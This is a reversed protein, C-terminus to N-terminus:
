GSTPGQWRRRAPPHRRSWTPAGHPDATRRVHGAAELAAIQRSAVSVDVHLDEAVAGIRVPGSRHVSALAVLTGAHALGARRLMDRKVAGLGYVGRVLAEVGTPIDSAPEMHKSCAVIILGGLQAASSM